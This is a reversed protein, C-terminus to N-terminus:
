LIIKVNNIATEIDFQPKDKDDLAKHPERSEALAIHKMILQRATYEREPTLSKLFLETEHKLITTDDTISKKGTYPTNENVGIPAASGEFLNSEKNIFVTKGNIVETEVKDWVYLHGISHNNVSGTKYQILLREGYDTPDLLGKFALGYDDEWLDTFVGVPMSQDHNFLYAIKRATSSKPGRENISKKFAGKVYMDGQMDVNGFAALYGQVERKSEDVELGEIAMSKFYIPRTSNRYPHIIPEM